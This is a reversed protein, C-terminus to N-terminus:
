ILTNYPAHMTDSLNNLLFSGGAHNLYPVWPRRAPASASAHLLCPRSLVPPRPPDMRPARPLLIKKGIISAGRHQTTVRTGKLSQTSCHLRWKNERRHSCRHRFSPSLHLRSTAFGKLRWTDRHQTQTVRMKSLLSGLTCFYHHRCDSM